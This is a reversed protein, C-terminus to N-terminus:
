RLSSLYYRRGGCSASFTITRVLRHYIKHATVGAIVPPFLLLQLVSLAVWCHSNVIYQTSPPGTLLTGSVARYPCADSNHNTTDTSTHNTPVDPPTEGKGELPNYAVCTCRRVTTNQPPGNRCRSPESLKFPLPLGRITDHDPQRFFVTSPYLATADSSTKMM